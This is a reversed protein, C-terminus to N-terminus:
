LWRAEKVNRTRTGKHLFVKAKLKILKEELMYKASEAHRWINYYMDKWDKQEAKKIILDRTELM